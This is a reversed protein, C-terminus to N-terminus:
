LSPGFLAAWLVMGFQLFASPMENVTKSKMTVSVCVKIKISM